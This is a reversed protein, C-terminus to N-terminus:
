RYRVAHVGVQTTDLTGDLAIADSTTNFTIQDTYDVDNNGTATVGTFINFAADFELELDDVGGFTISTLPTETTTATTTATTTTTTTTTTTATTATTATTTLGGCAFLTLGLVMVLMLFLGKKM